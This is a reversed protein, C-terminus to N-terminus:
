NVEGRYFRFQWRRNIPGNRALERLGSDWSPHPHAAQRYLWDCPSCLRGDPIPEGDIDIGCNKCKETM